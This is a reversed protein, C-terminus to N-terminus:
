VAVAGEYGFFITFTKWLSRHTHAEQTRPTHALPMHATSAREQKSLDAITNRRPSDGLRALFSYSAECKTYYLKQM